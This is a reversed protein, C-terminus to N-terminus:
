CIEKYQQTILYPQLATTIRAEIIDLFAFRKKYLNRKHSDVTEINKRLEFRPIIFFRQDAAVNGGVEEWFENLSTKLRRKTYFRHNVYAGYNSVAYIRQIGLNIALQRIAYIILNKPRYGFFTKTLNRITAAEGKAGQLCGIWLATEGTHNPAIWFSASYIRKDGCNLSIAMLGEKRYIRDYHLKLNLCDNEHPQSWLIIGDGLYISHLGQKSLTDEFFCFHKVLLNVREKITSQYYLWQRTPQELISPNGMIIHHRISYSGLFTILKNMQSFNFIASIIFLLRRWYFLHNASHSSGWGRRSQIISYIKLWYLLLTKPM